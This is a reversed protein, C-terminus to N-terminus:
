FISTAVRLSIMPLLIYPLLEEGTEEVEREVGTEIEVKIAMTAIEISITLMTEM